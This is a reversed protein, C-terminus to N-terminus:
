VRGFSAEIRPPSKFVPRHTQEAAGSGDPDARAVSGSDFDDRGRPTPTTPQM